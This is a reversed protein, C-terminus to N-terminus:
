LTQEKKLQQARLVAEVDALDQLRGATRKNLILHEASIYRAPVDGDVLYEESGAYATEFTVGDIQQMIEVCIPPVGIRLISAPILFDTVQVDSLPAGFRTLASYVAEANAPTADIFVDLDKTVRPQAHVGVAYGGVIVYRVGHENLASLLERLNSDM